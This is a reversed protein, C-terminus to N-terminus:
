SKICQKLSVSGSQTEALSLVKTHDTNMEGPVSQVLKQSKSLEILTFGSGLCRLKRIARVVDDDGIETECSSKTRNLESVLDQLPMLGGTKRENAM